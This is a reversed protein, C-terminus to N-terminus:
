LITVSVYSKDLIARGLLAESLVRNFVIKKEVRMISNM